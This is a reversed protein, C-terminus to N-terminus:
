RAHENSGDDGGGDLQHLYVISTKILEELSGCLKGGGHLVCM